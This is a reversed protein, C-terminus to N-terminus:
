APSMVLQEHGESPPQADVSTAAAHQAPLVQQPRPVQSRELPIRHASALSRLSGSGVSVAGLHRGVWYWPRFLAAPGHEVERAVEMTSQIQVSLLPM